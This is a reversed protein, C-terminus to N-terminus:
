NGPLKRTTIAHVKSIHPATDLFNGILFDEWLPAPNDFVEDPAMVLGLGDKVLVKLDYKTLCKKKQVVNAWSVHLTKSIPSQASSAEPSSTRGVSILGEM